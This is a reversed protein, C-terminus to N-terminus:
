ELLGHKEVKELLFEARKIDTHYKKLHEYGQSAIKQREEPKALYYECLDVLNSIDDDCYIVHEKDVFNNPIRIGPKTSIMFTNLAFVEWFRLTDWGAGRINLVINCRALEQLYFSGKRKYKSMIQSGHTGNDDCDFKGSLMQFAKSRLPDSEVAWFSVDYKKDHDLEPVLDLNFCMPYEHVNEPHQDELLYERKFILDFARKKQLRNFIEKGGLRDLDGAIEPWDGGDLFIRPTDKPMSDFIKEYHSIVDPHCSAVIVLDISKPNKLLSSFFQSKRLGINKPYPKLNFHFKSNWPSEYLSKDGLLKCLGTYTFDQIYDSKNRNIYLINM